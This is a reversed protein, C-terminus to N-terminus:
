RLAHLAANQFNLLSLGSSRDRGGRLCRVNCSVSVNAAIRRLLSTAAARRAHEEDVVGDRIKGAMEPPRDPMAVRVAPHWAVVVGAKLEPERKKPGTTSTGADRRREEDAAEPVGSAAMARIWAANMSDPSAQLSVKM